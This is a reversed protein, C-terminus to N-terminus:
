IFINEKKKEDAILIENNIENYCFSFEENDLSIKKEDFYKDFINQIKLDNIYM